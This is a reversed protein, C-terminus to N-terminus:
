HIECHLCIMPSTHNTLVRALCNSHCTAFFGILYIISDKLQFWASYNIRLFYYLIACIHNIKNVESLECFLINALRWLLIQIKKVAIHPEFIYTDQVSLSSNPGMFAGFLFLFVSKSVLLLSAQYWLRPMKIDDATGFLMKQLWKAVFAIHLLPRSVHKLQKRTGSSLITPSKRWCM